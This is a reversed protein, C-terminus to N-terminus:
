VFRNFHTKPLNSRDWEFFQFLHIFFFVDHCQKPTFQQTFHSCTYHTYLIRRIEIAIDFRVNDTFSEFLWNLLSDVNSHAVIFVACSLSKNLAICHSIISTFLVHRSRLPSFSQVSLSLSDSRARSFQDNGFIHVCYLRFSFQVSLQLTCCVSFMHLHQLIFSYPWLFLMVSIVM